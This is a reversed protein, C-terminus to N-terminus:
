FPLHVSASLQNLHSLMPNDVREYELRSVMRKLTVTAGFGQLMATGGESGELENEGRWETLGSKAYVSFAGMRIGAVLAGGLSLTDQILPAVSSSTFVEESERYAIEAGIDFQPFRWPTFGATLRFGSTYSDISNLNSGELVVGNDLAMMESDPTTYAMPLLETSVFSSGNALCVLPASTGLVSCLLTSALRNAPM